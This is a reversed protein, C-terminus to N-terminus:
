SGSSCKAADIALAIMLVMLANEPGDIDMVYTDTLHLLEKSLHAVTNGTADAIDYEWAFIDGSIQWGNCDVQFSPKFFTFQKKIEGICDDGIYLRFRPLFTFIEEKVTGVYEGTTNYIELCHGLALRGKVTYATNGVEDYIDYSDLWSFLRQKFLLRM